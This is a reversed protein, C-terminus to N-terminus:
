PLHSSPPRLSPRVGSRGDTQNQVAIATQHTTICKTRIAHITNLNDMNRVVHGLTEDNWLAVPMHAWHLLDALLALPGHAPVVGSPTCSGGHTSAGPNKM